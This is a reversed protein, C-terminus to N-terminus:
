DEKKRFLNRFFGKQESSGHTLREQMTGAHLVQATNLSIALQQQTEQAAQLAATLQEIQKDKESLQRDKESLQSDKITIQEKLFVITQEQLNSQLDQCTSQLNEPNDKALEQYTDSKKVITLASEDILKVGDLEKCHDQLTKALLQYIRQTSVGAKQAFEKVPIYKIEDNGM